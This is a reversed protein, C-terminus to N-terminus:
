IEELPDYEPDIVYELGIRDARENYDLLFENDVNKGVLIGLYYNYDNEFFQYSEEYLNFKKFYTKVYENRENLGTLLKQKNIFPVGILVKTIIDEKFRVRTSEKLINQSYLRFEEFDIIEDRAWENVIYEIIKEYYAVNRSKIFNLETRDRLLVWQLYIFWLLFIVGITNLITALM